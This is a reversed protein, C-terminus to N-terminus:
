RLQTNEAIRTRANLTPQWYFQRNVPLGVSSDVEIEYAQARLGLNLTSKLADIPIENQAWLASRLISANLGLDSTVGDSLNSSAVSFRHQHWEGGVTWISTGAVGTLKSNLQVVHERRDDHFSASRQSPQGALTTTSDRDFRYNSVSHEYSASSDLKVNKFRHTWDAAVQAAKRDYLQPSSTTSTTAQGFSSGTGSSNIFGLQDFSSFWSRIVVQDTASLRGTMRPTLTWSNFRTRSVESLHQSEPTASNVSSDRKVDNGLNRPGGTLSILYSWRSSDKIAESASQKTAPNTSGNAAENVAGNVPENASNVPPAAGLPGTQSSFIVGADRGWVHQDTLWLYTERKAQAGRMVVNITGGAAGEFEATPARVVEIREIMDAPLEDFPLQVNQRSSNVAAGDVLIRTSEAGMGRMRIELGGNGNTTVQVGPLQRLIDAITNAGMAEIDQRNVTVTSATSNFRDEFSRRGRVVVTEAQGPQAANSEEAGAQARACDHGLAMALLAALTVAALTLPALSLPVFTLPTFM